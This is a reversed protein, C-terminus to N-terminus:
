DSIDAKSILYQDAQMSLESEEVYPHNVHKATCKFNRYMGHMGLSAAKNSALPRLGSTVSDKRADDERVTTTRVLAPSVGLPM